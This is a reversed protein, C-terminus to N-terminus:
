SLSFQSYLHQTLHATTQPTTPASKPNSASARRASRMQHQQQLFFFFTAGGGGTTFSSLSFPKQKIVSYYNVIKFLGFRDNKYRPHVGITQFGDLRVLRVEKGLNRSTKVWSLGLVGVGGGGFSGVGIGDDDLEDDDSSTM